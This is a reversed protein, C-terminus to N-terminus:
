GPHLLRKLGEVRFPNCRKDEEATFRGGFKRGTPNQRSEGMGWPKRWRKM